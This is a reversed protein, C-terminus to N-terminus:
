VDRAAALATVLGAVERESTMGGDDAVFLGGARALVGIMSGLAEARAPNGLEGTLLGGIVALGAERAAWFLRDFAPVGLGGGAHVAVFGARAIAPLLPRIDGDSHFIAPLGLARATDVIRAYRPLLEAIAFDPAVLPGDTGALDEALVIARAGAEAGRAVEAVLTDLRPDLESGIQEPRTLTERLGELPGRAEIVPWLPGSLTWMPAVAADALGAAATEAWLEGAPVFAFSARLVDCAEVLDPVPGHSAGIVPGLAEAPVFTLGFPFPAGNLSLRDM